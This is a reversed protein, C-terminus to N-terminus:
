ASVAASNVTQNTATAAHSSAAAKSRRSGSKEGGGGKGLRGSVAMGKKPHGNFPMDIGCQLHWANIVRDGERGGVVVLLLVVVVLL